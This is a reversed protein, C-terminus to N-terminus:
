EEFRRLEAHVDDGVITLIVYGGRAFLGTNFIRTEGLMAEGIAEHIHGSVSVAPRESEIFDRVATSGVHEGGARDLPTGRPPAHAVLVKVRADAVQDHGRRLTAAIEDETYETPTGFPTANSGGAGFVGVHDFRHGKGHLNIGEEDLYRAAEGTDMNGPQALVAGCHKRIEEIMRRMRERDGRNTLDGHVVVLDARELEEKMSPLPSLDEHVDGFLLIRMQIKEKRSV